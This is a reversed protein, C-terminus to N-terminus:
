HPPEARLMGHRLIEATERIVTDTDEGFHNPVGFLIEVAFYNLFFRSAMMVALVPSIGPRLRRTLEEARGHRQMFEAFRRPMDAYFKRIHLGEFEVVDVYVLAVYRRYSEVLQRSAHGLAELNEPFTGSALARNFPLDPDDIAQWYQDLLTRYIAEKDAFHHYVSGTSVGATTAIDRVSTARFGRQSFLALAANLIQERSRQSRLQQNM